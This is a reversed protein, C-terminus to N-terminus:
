GFCPVATTIDPFAILTFNSGEDVSLNRLNSSPLYDSGEDGSLHTAYTQPVLVEFVDMKGMQKLPGLWVEKLDAPAPNPCEHAMVAIELHRLSPMRALMAWMDHYLQRDEAPIVSCGLNLFQWKMEIASILAFRQPLM